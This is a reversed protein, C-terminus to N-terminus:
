KNNKIIQYARWATESMGSPKLDDAALAVSKSLEPTHKIPTTAPMESLEVEKEVASMEVPADEPANMQELLATMAAQLEGVQAELSDIRQEASPTEEQIEEEAEEAHEEAAVEEAEVTEEVTEESMETNDEVPTEAPMEEAVDEVAEEVRVSAIVGEEEVVIVGVDTTHEGVPAPIREEESVIFVQQGEEFAEAELVTGDELTATAMKVEVSEEKSLGLLTGISKLTENVNSM